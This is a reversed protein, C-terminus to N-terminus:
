IQESSSSVNTPENAKPSPSAPPSSAMARGFSAVVAKVFAEAELRESLVGISWCIEPLRALPFHLGGAIKLSPLSDANNVTSIV